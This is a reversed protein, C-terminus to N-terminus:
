GLNSKREEQSNVGGKEPVKGEEFFRTGGTMTRPHFQIPLNFHNKREFLNSAEKDTVPNRRGAPM